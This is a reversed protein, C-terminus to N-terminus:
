TQEPQVHEGARGPVGLYHNRPALEVWGTFIDSPDTSEKRLSLLLEKLLIDTDDKCEPNSM